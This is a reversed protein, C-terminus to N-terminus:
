VVKEFIVTVFLRGDLSPLDYREGNVTRILTKTGVFYSSIQRITYGGKTAKETIDKHEFVTMNKDSELTIKYVLTSIIQKPSESM